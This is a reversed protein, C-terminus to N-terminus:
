DSMSGLVTKMGLLRVMVVPPVDKHPPVSVLLGGGGGGTLGMTVVVVGVLPAVSTATSELRVMVKLSFTLTAPSQNANTHVATACEVEGRGIDGDCTTWGGEGEVGSHIQLDTFGAGDGDKGCM